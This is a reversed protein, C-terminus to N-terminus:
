KRKLCAFAEPRLVTNSFDDNLTFEVRDNKGNYQAFFRSGDGYQALVSYSFVGFLIADEPMFTTSVVPYGNMHGDELLMKPKGKEVPTSKLMCYTKPHVIYAASGDPQVNNSLVTAELAVIDKLTPGTAVAYTGSPAAYPTALLSAIGNNPSSPATTSFLAKNLTAGVAKALREIIVSRLNINSANLAQSTIPVYVGLRTPTASLKDIQLAKDTLAVDEGLIQAEVGALVPWVPQGYVGTQLRLGLKTHILEAELPQILEQILTPRASEVNQQLTTARSELEVVARSDVARRAAAIFERALDDQDTAVARLAQEVNMTTSRENLEETIQILEREEDETLKGTKRSSQLEKFRLYLKNLEEQEKTM